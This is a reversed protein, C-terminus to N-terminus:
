FIAFGDFIEFVVSRLYFSMKMAHEGAFLDFPYEKSIYRFIRQAEKLDFAVIWAYYARVYRNKLSLFLYLTESQQICFISSIIVYLEERDHHSLDDHKQFSEYVPTIMSQAAVIEEEAIYFETM